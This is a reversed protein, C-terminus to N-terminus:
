DGDSGCHYLLNFCPRPRGSSKLGKKRLGTERPFVLLRESSWFEKDLVEENRLAYFQTALSTQRPSKFTKKGHNKNDKSHTNFHKAINLKAVM